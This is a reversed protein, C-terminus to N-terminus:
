PGEVAGSRATAALAAERKAGVGGLGRLRRRVCVLVVGLSIIAVGEAAIAIVIELRYGQEMFGFLPTQESILLAALGGAAVGIGAIAALADFVLRRPGSTTRLPVLLILGLITAAIFNALFLPGITPVESFHAVKYQELHVSGTVLLAVAGLARALPLAVSPAGQSSVDRISPGGSNRRPRLLEVNDIRAAPDHSEARMTTSRTATAASSTGSPVSSTSGRVPRRARPRTAPTTTSPIVTTPSRPRGM